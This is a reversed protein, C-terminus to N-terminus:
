PAPFTVRFTSGRGFTSEVSITGAMLEVLKKTIALGIGTGEIDGRERGLRCFSDFLNEMQEPEIGHGTDTVAISVSTETRALTVRITGGPVNYKVANSLLNVVIQKCRTRDGRITTSPVTDSTITINRDAALPSVLRLAEDIVEDCPVSGITMEIQGNEIRSLDLLENVLDLLHKGARVIEEAFDAQRATLSRDALLMQGFGLVSNLPTRLEHSMSSLFDSKARNAREAADRALLSEEKLTVLSREAEIATLANALIQAIVQLGRLQHETWETKKRMSYIGIFGFVRKDTYIPLALASRVNMEALFRRERAAEPPMRSVDPIHIVSREHLLRRTYWPADSVPFNKVPPRNKETDEPTWEHTNSVNKRDASLRVVSGRDVQFFEVMRRLNRNIVEDITGDNVGVFDAAITAVMELFENQKILAQEMERRRTVDQKLALYHTVGGHGDRVPSIIAEEWYLEGNRRRNHFVGKWNDGGSITQWLRAYEEQSRDGAKLIRPNKGIAETSSYGSTREFQPNVYVIDGTTDTIVATVPSQELATRLVQLENEYRGRDTLDRFTIVAGTLVSDVIIPRSSFEVEVFSGDKRIFFDRGDHPHGDGITSHIPCEEPPYPSGDNRHHHWTEHSNQGILESPNYGLISAAAANVFTHRGSMDLGFIGESTTNLISNLLVKTPDSRKQMASDPEM